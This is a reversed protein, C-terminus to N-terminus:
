YTVAMNTHNQHHLIVLPDHGDNGRHSKARSWSVMSVTLKCRAGVRASISRNIPSSCAKFTKVMSWHKASIPGHCGACPVILWQTLDIMLCNITSSMVEEDWATRPEVTKVCNLLVENSVSTDRASIDERSNPRCSIHM